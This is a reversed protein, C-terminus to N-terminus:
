KWYSNKHSLWLTNVLSHIVIWVGSAHKHNQQHHEFTVSRRSVFCFCFLEHPWDTCVCVPGQCRSGTELDSGWFIESVKSRWWTQARPRCSNEKRKPSSHRSKNLVVSRCPGRCWPALWLMCYCWLYVNTPLYYFSLLFLLLAVLCVLSAHM